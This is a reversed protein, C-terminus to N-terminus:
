VDPPLAVVPEVAPNLSLVTPHDPSDSADLTVARFEGGCRLASAVPNRVITIGKEDRLFIRGADDVRLWFARGNPLAYAGLLAGEVSFIELWQETSEWRGARTYLQRSLTTDDSNWRFGHNRLVYLRGEPGFTAEALHPTAYIRPRAGGIQLWDARWIEEQPPSASFYRPLSVSRIVAPGGPDSLSSFVTVVADVLNVSM